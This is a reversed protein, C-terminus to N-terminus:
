YLRLQPLCERGRSNPEYPASTKCATDRQSELHCSLRADPTFEARGVHAAIPTSFTAYVHKQIKIIWSGHLRQIYYDQVFLSKLTQKSHCLENRVPNIFIGTNQVPKQKTRTLVFKLRSFKM